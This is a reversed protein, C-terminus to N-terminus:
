VEADSRLRSKRDSASDRIDGLNNVVPSLEVHVGPGVDTEDRVEAVITIGAIELQAEPPRGTKKNMLQLPRRDFGLQDKDFPVRRRVAGQDNLRQSGQRLAAADLDAADDDPLFVVVLEDPRPFPAHIRGRRCVDSQAPGLATEDRGLSRVRVQRVFDDGGDCTSIKVLVPQIPAITAVDAEGNAIKLFQFVVRQEGAELTQVTRPVASHGMRRLPVDAVQVGIGAAVKQQHTAGNPM